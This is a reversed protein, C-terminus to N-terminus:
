LGYIRNIVERHGDRYRDWLAHVKAEAQTAALLRTEHFLAWDPENKDFKERKVYDLRKAAESWEHYVLISIEFIDNDLM